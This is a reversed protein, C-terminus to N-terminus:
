FTSHAAPLLKPLGMDQHYLREIKQKETSSVAPVSVQGSRNRRTLAVGFRKEFAHTDDPVALNVVCDFRIRMFRMGRWSFSLQECQPLTHLDKRYIQPLIQLFDDFEFRKAFDEAVSFNYPPSLGAARMVQYHINQLGASRYREIDLFKSRFVSLTRSFPDRYFLVKLKRRFRGAALRLLLDPNRLRRLQPAQDLTTSAVKLSTVILSGDRAVFRAM